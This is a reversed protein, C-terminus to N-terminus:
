NILFGLCREYTIYLFIQKSYIKPFDLVAPEYSQVIADNLDNTLAVHKRELKELSRSRIEMSLVCALSRMGDAIMLRATLITGIPSIIVHLPRPQLRQQLRPQHWDLNARVIHLTRLRESSRSVTVM